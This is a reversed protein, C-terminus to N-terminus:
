LEVPDDEAQVVVVIKEAACLATVDLTFPTYGGEHSGALWDNVWVKARYDVAGFHLLLREGSKARPPTIQRRYWCARFFGTCNVGSAPTEPAFPVEITEKWTVDRPAQWVGDSDIAFDWRGNLSTWQKRVLQPRPYGRGGILTDTQPMAFAQHTALDSGRFVRRLKQKRRRWM